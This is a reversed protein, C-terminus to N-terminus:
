RCELCTQEVKGAPMWINIPTNPATIDESYEAADNIADDIKDQDQM